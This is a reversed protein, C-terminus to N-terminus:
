RKRRALSFVIALLAALLLLPSVFPRFAPAVEYLYLAVVIIAWFPLLTIIDKKTLHPFAIPGVYRRWGWQFGFIFLGTSLAIVTAQAVWATRTVSVAFIAAGTVVAIPIMVAFFRLLGVLKVM